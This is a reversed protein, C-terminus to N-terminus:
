SAILQHISRYTYDIKHDVSLEPTDVELILSPNDNEPNAEDELRRNTRTNSSNNDNSNLDNTYQMLVGGGCVCCAQSLSLQDPSFYEDGFEDCFAEPDNTGEEVFACDINFEDLTSWELDVCSPQVLKGGGCFCCAERPRKTSSIGQSLFNCLEESHDLNVLLELETCSRGAFSSNEWITENPMVWNPEDECISPAFSPDSSPQSSVSPESSPYSSPHSSISPESSPYSSPHSSISPESSPYSSPQSSISPESSPYSSPQSSVSPESSPNSSPQSSVSPESSPNSSPQSSVSPESSPNSSPQSSVSPEASPESSPAKSKKSSKSGKGGIITDSPCAGCTEPCFKRVVEDTCKEVTNWRRVWECSKKASGNQNVGDVEFRETSDKCPPNPPSNNASKKPSKVLNTDQTDMPPEDICMGCANPCHLRVSDLICRSARIEPDAIRLVWECTKKGGTTGEVDFRELSDICLEDESLLRGTSRGRRQQFSIVGTDAM